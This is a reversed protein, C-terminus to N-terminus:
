ASEQEQRWYPTINSASPSALSLKKIVAELQVKTLPKVIFGNAGARFCRSELSPNTYATVVILPTKSNRSPSRRLNKIMMENSNDSLGLDALILDYRESFAYHLAQQQTAAIHVTYRLAQLYKSQIQQILQNDEILLAKLLNKQEIITNTENRAICSKENKDKQKAIKEM